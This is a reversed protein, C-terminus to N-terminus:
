IFSSQSKLGELGTFCKIKLEKGELLASATVFPVLNKPATPTPARATLPILLNILYFLLGNYFRLASVITKTTYFVCLTHLTSHPTSVRGGSFRDGKGKLAPLILNPSKLAENRNYVPSFPLLCCRLSRRGRRDTQGGYVVNM